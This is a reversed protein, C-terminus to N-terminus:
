GSKLGDAPGPTLDYGVLNGLANATVCIKRM